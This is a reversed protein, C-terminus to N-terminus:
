IATLNPTLAFIKRSQSWHYFRSHYSYRLHIVFFYCLIFLGIGLFQIGPQGGTFRLSFHWFLVYLWFRPRVWYSRWFMVNIDPDSFLWLTSLEGISCHYWWKSFVQKSQRGSLTPSWVCQYDHSHDLLCWPHDLDYKILKFHGNQHLKCEDVVYGQRAASKNTYRMSKWISWSCRIGCCKRSCSERHVVLVINLSAYWINRQFLFDSYSDNVLLLRFLM